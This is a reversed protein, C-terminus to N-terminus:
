EQETPEEEDQVVKTVEEGDENKETIIRRKKERCDSEFEETLLKQMDEIDLGPRLIQGVRLFVRVYEDKSCMLTKGPRTFRKMFQEIGAKVNPHHRLSERRQVNEPTYMFANGDDPYPKPPLCVLPSPWNDREHNFVYELDKNNTEKKEEVPPLVPKKAEVEPNQTPDQVEDNQPVEEAETM